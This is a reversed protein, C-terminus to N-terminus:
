RCRRTNITHPVLNTWTGTNISQDGWSPPTKSVNSWASLSKCSNDWILFNSDITETGSGAYVDLAFVDLGIM